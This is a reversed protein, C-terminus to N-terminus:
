SDDVPRRDEGGQAGSFKIILESVVVANVRETRTWLHVFALDVRVDTAVPDTVVCSLAVGAVTILSMVQVM